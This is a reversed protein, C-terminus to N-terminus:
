NDFNIKSYKLGLYRYKFLLYYFMIIPLSLLFTVLFLWGIIPILSIFSITFISILILISIIINAIFFDKSKLVTFLLQPNFCKEFEKESAYILISARTIYTTFFSISFIMIVSLIYLLLYDFILNLFLIAIISIVGIVWYLVALTSYAIGNILLKHISINTFKPPEDKGNITYTLVSVFYGYLFIFPLIFMAGISWILSGIFYDVINSKLPYELSNSIM